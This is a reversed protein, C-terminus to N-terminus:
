TIVGRIQDRFARATEVAVLRKTEDIAPRVYPKAKITYTTSLALALWMEDSTKIWMAWFFRRQKPTITVTVGFEHAAGYVVGVRIDVRFQNVKVTVISDVLEGSDILGQRVANDKAQRLTVQAGTDLSEAIGVQPSIQRGIARINKDLQGFGFAKVKFSM